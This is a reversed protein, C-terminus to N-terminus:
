ETAEVCNSAGRRECLRFRVREAWYRGAENVDSWSDYTSSEFLGIIPKRAGVRRDIEAAILEGTQADTLKGEITVQGSFPPKGTTHVMTQMAAAKAGPLGLPIPIYSAAKMSSDSAEADVIAVSIRLTDPGPQEVIKYDKGLQDSVLKQFNQSIAATDSAPADKLKSKPGGYLKIPDLIVKNYRAFLAQDAYKPNRYLRLAEGDSGDKLKPYADEMFGSGTLDKGLDTSRGPQSTSSCGALAILAVGLTLTSLRTKM